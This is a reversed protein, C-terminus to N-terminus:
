GGDHLRLDIWVGKGNLVWDQGALLYGELPGGFVVSVSDFQGVTIGSDPEFFCCIHESGHDGIGREHISAVVPFDNRIFSSFVFQFDAYHGLLVEVVVCGEAIEFVPICKVAESLEPVVTIRRSRLIPFAEFLFSHESDEQVHVLPLEAKGQVALIESNAELIVCQFLPRDESSNRQQM